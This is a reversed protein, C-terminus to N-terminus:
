SGNFGFGYKSSINSRNLCLCNSLKSPRPQDTLSRMYQFAIKSGTIVRREVVMSALAM